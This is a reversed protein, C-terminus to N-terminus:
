GIYTGWQSSGTGPATTSSAYSFTLARCGRVLPTCSSVGSPIPALMQAVRTVGGVTEYTLSTTNASGPQTVKTPLYDTAGTPKTFETINADLDKLDFVGSSPSTITLDEFGAEPVYKTGDWYFTVIGGDTDTVVVFNGQASEAGNHLSVWDSGAADVSASSQWGPGFPGTPTAGPDRSNFTRSVTLGSGYSSSSVDAPSVR